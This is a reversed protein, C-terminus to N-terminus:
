LIKAKVNISMKINVFWMKIGYNWQVYFLLKIPVLFQINKSINTMFQSCVCKEVRQYNCSQSVLKTGDPTTKSLDAHFSHICTWIAILFYTLFEEGM